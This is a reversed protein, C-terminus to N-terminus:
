IICIAFPEFEVTNAKPNATRFIDEDFVFASVCVCVVCLVNERACLCMDMTCIIHIYYHAYTHRRRAVSANHERRRRIHVRHTANVIIHMACRWDTCMRVFVHGCLYVGHMVCM